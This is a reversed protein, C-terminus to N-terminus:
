ELETYSLSDPTEYNAKELHYLEKLSGSIHSTWKVGCGRMFHTLAQAGPNAQTLHCLPCNCSLPLGEPSMGKGLIFHETSERCAVLRAQKQWALQVWPNELGKLEQFLCFDWSLGTIM